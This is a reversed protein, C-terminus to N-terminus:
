QRLNWYIKINKTRRGAAVLDTDRDGDLDAAALDECAMTNDDVWTQTWGTGDEKTTSFLKVGVRTGLKHHARWGVAIQRNNLGLYDYCALAHGDVLTDDLVRRQWLGDKPGNPPPTYIVLQHGHMPEIAAIYPQGGAFAGWRVEGAGALDPSDHRTVWQEKWGNDGPTLRVIGERGALLIPEAEDAPSPVIEFNHTMHMSDHVLTTNWPQTVDDPKHYALIHVGVGEGKQNGRGHLPAVILDYRGARNRVWRMRHTTPEHTLQIPKWMQTRDAPPQLYFVAGSTETDGPDWQAGVAIEAKGDGDIDRAAICVHDKETLKEAIVHKKWTPNQYWVILDKDAVLIDPKRDGDVDAVALGYGIGVEADITEERFLPSEQALGLTSFALASVVTLPRM